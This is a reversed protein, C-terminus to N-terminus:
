ITINGSIKTILKTICKLNNIANNKDNTIETSVNGSAGDGCKKCCTEPVVTTVKLM